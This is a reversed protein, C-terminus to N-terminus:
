LVVIYKKITVRLSSEEFEKILLTTLWQKRPHPHPTCQILLAELMRRKLIRYRNVTKM